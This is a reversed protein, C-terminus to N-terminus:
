LFYGAIQDDATADALDLTASPGGEGLKGDVDQFIPRPQPTDTAGSASGANPASAVRPERQRPVVLDCGVFRLARIPRATEVWPSAPTVMAAAAEGAIARAPLARRLAFIPRWHRLLLLVASLVRDGRVLPEGKALSAVTVALASHHLAGASTHPTALSTAAAAAASAAPLQLRVVPSGAEATTTGLFVAALVVAAALEIVVLRDTTLAVRTVVSKGDGGHRMTVDFTCPDAGSSPASGRHEGVCQLLLSCTSTLRQFPCRAAENPTAMSPTPPVFAFGGAALSVALSHALRAGTGGSQARLTGDSALVPAAVLAFVTERLVDLSAPAAALASSTSGAAPDAAAAGHSAAHLTASRSSTVTSACSFRGIRAAVSAFEVGAAACAGAIGHRLQAESVIADHAACLWRLHDFAIAGRAALAGEAEGRGPHVAVVAASVVTLVLRATQDLRRRDSSVGRHAADHGPEPADSPAAFWREAGHALLQFGDDDNDHDAGATTIRATDGGRGSGADDRARRVAQAARLGEQESGIAADGASGRRTASRFCVSPQRPAVLAQVANAIVFARHRERCARLMRVLPPWRCRLEVSEAVVADAVGAIVERLDAAAVGRATTSLTDRPSWRLSDLVLRDAFHSAPAQLPSTPPENHM